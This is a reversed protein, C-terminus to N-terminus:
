DYSILGNPISVLYQFFVIQSRRVFLFCIFSPSPLECGAVVVVVVVFFLVKDSGSGFRKKEKISISMSLLYTRNPWGLVLQFFTTLLIIPLKSSHFFLLYRKFLIWCPNLQWTHWAKNRDFDRRLFCVLLYYVFILNCLWRRYLSAAILSNRIWVYIRM